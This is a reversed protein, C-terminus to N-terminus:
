TSQIKGGTSTRSHPHSSHHPNAPLPGLFNGGMPANRYQLQPAKVCKARPASGVSLYCLPRAMSQQQVLYRHMWARLAILGRQAHYKIFPLLGKQAITLRIACAMVTKRQFATVQALGAGLARSNPRLILKRQATTARSAHVTAAATPACAAGVGGGGRPALAAANRRCTARRRTGMFGPHACAMVRTLQKLPIAAKITAPCALAQAAPM